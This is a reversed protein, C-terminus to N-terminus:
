LLVLPAIRSMWTASVRIRRGFALMFTILYVALPIIWLFPVSALNLLIHNTVALMLASPVCAAAMWYMRTKWLPRDSASGDSAPPHIFDVGSGSALERWVMASTGFVMLVLVGYGALWVSSQV